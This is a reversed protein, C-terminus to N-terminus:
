VTPASSTVTSTRCQSESSVPGKKLGSLVLSDTVTSAEASAIGAPADATRKSNERVCARLSQHHAISLTAKLRLPAAAKVSFKSVTGPM